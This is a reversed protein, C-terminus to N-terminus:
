TSPEIDPDGCSAIASAGAVPYVGVPMPAKPRLLSPEVVRAGLFLCVGGGSYRFGAVGLMFEPSRSLCPEITLSAFLLVPPLAAAARMERSHGYTAIGLSRPQPVLGVRM